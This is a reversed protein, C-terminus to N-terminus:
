DAATERYRGIEFHNGAEELEVPTLLYRREDHIFELSQRLNFSMGPL